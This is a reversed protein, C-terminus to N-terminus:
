HFFSDVMFAIFLIALYPSTFKFVIWSTKESPRLLLLLSLAMM